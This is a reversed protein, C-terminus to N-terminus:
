YFLNLLVTLVQGFLYADDLLLWNWTAVAYNWIKRDQYADSFFLFEIITNSTQVQIQLYRSNRLGVGYLKGSEQKQNKRHTTSNLFAPRLNLYTCDKLCLHKNHSMKWNKILNMIPTCFKPLIVKENMVALLFDIWKWM